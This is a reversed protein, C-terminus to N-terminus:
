PKDERPNTWEVRQGEIAMDRILGDHCYQWLSMSSTIVNINTDLSAINQSVHPYINGKNM